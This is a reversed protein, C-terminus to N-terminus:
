KNKVSNWADTANEFGISQVAIAKVSISIDEGTKLASLDAATAQNSIAVGGNVGNQNTFIQVDDLVVNPDLARYFVFQGKDTTTLYNWANNLGLTAIEKEGRKIKLMNEAYTWHESPTIVVFVFTASESGAFDLKVENKATIGPSLILYNDGSETLTIDGFRIVRASASSTNKSIYRAYLGSIAYSSLLVACLLLLAIHMPSLLPAKNNSKQDSM